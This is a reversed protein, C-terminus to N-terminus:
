KNLIELPLPEDVFVLKSKSKDKDSEPAPKEKAEGEGAAFPTLDLRKSQLQGGLSTKDGLNAELAGSLDSEGFTADISDLALHGTTLRAILAAKFPITPLGPELSALSPGAAKLSLEIGADPGQGVSGDLNIKSDVFQITWGKLLYDEAAVALTGDAKLSYKGYAPALAVNIDSGSVLAQEPGLRAALKLPQDKVQGSADIITYKADDTTIDLSALSAILPEAEPNRYTINVNRVEAFEIIVPLGASASSGSSSERTQEPETTAEGGLAWNGKEQENTELLVDVDRLRFNQIRVPGSVLSWLDVETSFHGIEAMVPKSGWETNSFTINELTISSTPLINIDFNGNMKLKRGTAEAVASEIRPKIWNLDAFSLYLTGAILVVAVSILIWKLAQIIFM